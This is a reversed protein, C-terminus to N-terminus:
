PQSEAPPTEPAMDSRKFARQEGSLTKSLEQLYLQTKAQHGQSFLLMPVLLAVCFQVLSLNKLRTRRQALLFLSSIMLGLIMGAIVESQSHVNLMLRSAGVLLALAYGVAILLLRLALPLRGGLLWFMVPWLTAALATHGSFGTFDLHEIGLGWGMFAIKSVCVILGTLGFVGLWYWVTRRNDSKWPLFLAIIIATPLLLMSDGFYTLTTWSM